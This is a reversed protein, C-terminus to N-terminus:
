HCWKRVTLEAPLLHAHANLTDTASTRLSGIIALVGARQITIIQNLAKAPGIRSVRTWAGRESLCWVDVAYLIHPLAMSIYLRRAYKPTIGWTPRALRRIQAAWKTGKGVAYAQQAKWRLSQDAIVGLYKTSTSPKIQRQLLHLVTRAKSSSRHTFDILVLKTYELPSNHTRSWELAGGERTMMDALMMHAETFTETAAVLITDDVYALTDKNKRSPIDLLDANYYQYLVMSLPDGQGIGNDIEIPESTHGDYKLMTCRDTLMKEIFGVYKGPIRHKRLNHVLKTPIANLFAGEVDLFLVAAVKGARWTDKIKHALV